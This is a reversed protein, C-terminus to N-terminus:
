GETRRPPRDPRRGSWFGRKRVEMLLRRHLNHLRVGMAKEAAAVEEETARPALEPCGRDAYDTRTKRNVARARVLAILQEDDM